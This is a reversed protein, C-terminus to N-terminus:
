DVISSDQFFIYNPLHEKLYKLVANDDDIVIILDDTKITNLYSSKLEKSSKPNSEKSLIIRNKKEFFPAYKDLWNNKANIDKDKKCVSLIYLTVNPLSSIKEFTKINTKIPRKNIFELPLGFEYDAIVGDMDVYIQITKEKSIKKIKNVFYM